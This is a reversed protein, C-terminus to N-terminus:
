DEGDIVLHKIRELSQGYEVQDLVFQEYKQQTKFISLIFERTCIKNTQLGIYTTYSSWQYERLDKILFSVIPNLHIYRSVHILQEEHEIRVAKFQGQLLHGVRNHRTNFYKTYSNSIKNIFESIGNEQLQRILFHYHNPMLCYCFIEVIKKNKEFKFDKFRNLQSFKPKPGQFQYYYITQLFRNYDRKDTFIPLKAVGRNFIHYTQDTALPITRYPM